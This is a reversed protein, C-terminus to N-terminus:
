SESGDEDDVESLRIGAMGKILDLTARCDGIATHDGGPLPQWKFDGFYDSWEGCYRAFAIMACDYEAAEITPLGYHRCTGELIMTDFDANYVVVRKGRLLEALVPYVEAFRPANAVRADTIGHILTSDPPIPGAPRILTDILTSGDAALVGIQVPECGYDLGTTETDLVLWGNSSMLKRAWKVAGERALAIRAEREEWEMENQCSYCIGHKDDFQARPVDQKCRLCHRVMRGRELAALQAPTCAKAPTAEHEDYLWLWTSKYALCGRAPGPRLRLQRLQLETKFHEPAKGWDYRPLGPCDGTPQRKWTWGCIACTYGSGTFM